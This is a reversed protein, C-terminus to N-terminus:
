FFFAPPSHALSHTHQACLSAALYFPYIPLGVNTARTPLVAEM